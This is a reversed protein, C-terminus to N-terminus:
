RKTIAAELALLLPIRAEDVAPNPLVFNRVSEGDFVAIITDVLTTFREGLAAELEPLLERALSEIDAYYREAVPALGRRLRPSTRAALALEYWAHNTRSRTRARVLRLATPLPPEKGRMAVFERRYRDLTKKGVDEGVAVMLAERTPFHRFLAGQSVEARDCIAQVSSAAYGTEILADTAADLLKRITGERREAQTRRAPKKGVSVAM